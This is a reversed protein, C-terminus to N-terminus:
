HLTETLAVIVCGFLPTVVPDPTAVPVSVATLSISRTADSIWVALVATSCTM